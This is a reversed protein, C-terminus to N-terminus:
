PRAKQPHFTEGRALMATIDAIKKSRGAETRIQGLRFILAFRNQATLVDFMARAKPEADIAAMLDAPVEDTSARYAKDWRGDARAADVDVRLLPTGDEIGAAERVLDAPLTTAGDVQVSRVALLPGVWLAWALALLALLGGAVQLARRRRTSGTRRRRIPTVSSSGRGPSSRRPAGSDRDRTTTGTRSM